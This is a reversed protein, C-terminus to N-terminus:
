KYFKNGVCWKLRGRFGMVYGGMILCAIDRVLLMAAASHGRTDSMSFCGCDFEHGRMLNVSIAVIFVFLMLNILLAAPKPYYGVLLALGAFLELFPM